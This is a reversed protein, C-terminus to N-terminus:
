EWNIKKNCKKCTMPREDSYFRVLSNCEPNGCWRVELFRYPPLNEIPKLGLSKWFFQNVNEYIVGWYDPGYIWNPPIVLPRYQETM